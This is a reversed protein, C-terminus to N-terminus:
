ESSAADPTPEAHLMDLLAIAASFLHEGDSQKTNFARLNALAADYNIRYVAEGCQKGSDPGSVYTVRDPILNGLCGSEPGASFFRDADPGTLGLLRGPVHGSARVFNLSGPQVDCYTLIAALLGATRASPERNLSGDTRVAAKRPLDYASKFPLSKGSYFAAVAKAAALRAKAHDTLEAPTAPTAAVDPTVPPPLYPNSEAAINAAAIEGLTDLSVGDIAVTTPTSTSYSPAAQQLEDIVSPLDYPFPNFVHGDTDDISYAANGYATIDSEAPRIILPASVRIQRKKSPM